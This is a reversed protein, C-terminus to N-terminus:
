YIIVQKKKVGWEMAEEKSFTLIDFRHQYRPNMRDACEYYKNDIKVVTGFPLYRPCAIIGERVREGSATINPTSDTQEPVPNYSTIVAYIKAKPILPVNPAKLSNGQIIIKEQQGAPYFKSEDKVNNKYSLSTFAFIACALLLIIDPIDDKTM